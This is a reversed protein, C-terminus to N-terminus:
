TEGCPCPAPLFPPREPISTKYGKPKQNKLGTMHSEGAMVNIMELFPSSGTKGAKSSLAKPEFRVRTISTWCSGLPVLKGVPFILGERDAACLLRQHDRGLLGM